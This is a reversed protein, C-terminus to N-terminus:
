KFGFLACDRATTARVAHMRIAAAPHSADRPPPLKKLTEIAANVDDTLCRAFIDAEVEKRQQPPLMQSAQPPYPARPNEERWAHGLEHAIAFRIQEYSFTNLHHDGLTIRSDNHSSRDSAPRVTLDHKTKLGIRKEMTRLLDIVEPFSRESMTYLIPQLSSTHGNVVRQFSYGELPAKPRLRADPNTFVPEAM